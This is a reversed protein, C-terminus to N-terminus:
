EAANAWNASATDSRKFVDGCEPCVGSTNGTLDYGCTSCHGPPNPRGRRLLLITTPSAVILFPIWLSISVFQFSLSGWRGTGARCRWLPQWSRRKYVNRGVQDTSGPQPDVPFHSIFLVGGALEVDLYHGTTTCRFGFPLSVVWALAILMSIALGSRTLLYPLLPRAGYRGM